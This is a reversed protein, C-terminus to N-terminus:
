LDIRGGHRGAKFGDNYGNLYARTLRHEVPETAQSIEEQTPLGAYIKDLHEKVDPLMPRAVLREEYRGSRSPEGAPIDDQTLPRRMPLAPGFEEDPEFRDEGIEVSM